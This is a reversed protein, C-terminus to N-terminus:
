AFRGPWAAAITWAGGDPSELVLASALHHLPVTVPAPGYARLLFDVTPHHGVLLMTEGTDTPGQLSGTLRQWATVDYPEAPHVTVPVPGLVLMIEDATQRTRATPTHVLKSVTAGADRAWDQIWQGTERAMRRGASTLEPDREGRRREGHRVFIIRM